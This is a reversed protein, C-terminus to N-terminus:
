SVKWSLFERSLHCGGGHLDIVKVMM